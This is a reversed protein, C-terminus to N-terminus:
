AAPEASTDPKASPAPRASAAPQASVAPKESAARDASPTPKASPAPAKTPKASPAPSVTPAPGVPTSTPAPGSPSSTPAPTSAPPKPADPAPASPAPTTSATPAPTTPPPTGPAPTTPAPTTPATIPDPRGITLPAAVGPASRWADGVLAEVGYAWLGQSVGVEVCRTRTLVGSCGGRAGVTERTTADTRFVRYGRVVVGAPLTMAPWNVTVSVGHAKVIPASAAPLEGARAGAVADAAGTDWAALAALPSAWLTAAALGASTVAYLSRPLRM